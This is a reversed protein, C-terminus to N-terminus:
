GKRRVAAWGARYRAFEAGVVLAAVWAAAPEPVAVPELEVSGAAIIAGFNDAWVLYDESDVVGNENADASLISGSGLTDRWVTYDAADVAGDFNFDGDLSSAFHLRVDDFDVELDAAPALPDVQNLNVLRIGLDRGLSPDGPLASFTVVSTAFEGEPISGPLTSTDSAIPTGGALLDIRYGPFGGLDFYEGSLALGSAINGVEVRLTYTRFPLLPTGVRMQQLGYEGLGGSGARNYAIAVRSGEPAGEPFFVFEGPMGAAPQPELTGVYFPDAAGAGILGPPDEYLDWGPSAGFSFENFIVAAGTTDEFGANVVPVPTGGAYGVCAVVCGVTTAVRCCSSATLM